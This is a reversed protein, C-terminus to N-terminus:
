NGVIKTICKAIAEGCAQNGAPTFHVGDALHKKPDGTGDPLCMAANVDCFHYGEKACLDKIGANVRIVNKQADRPATLVKVFPPVSCLIIHKAGGERGLNASKAGSALQEVVDDAMEASMEDDFASYRWVDNTGGMIVLIDTPITQPIRLAIEHSVQGGIGWNTISTRIGAKNLWEKMWHQYTGSHRFNPPPNGQTLSDGITAIRVKKTM